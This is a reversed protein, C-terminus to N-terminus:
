QRQQKNQQQLELLCLDREMEAREKGAIFPRQARLALIQDDRQEASFDAASSRRVDRPRQLPSSQSQHPPRWPASSAGPLQYQNEETSKNNNYYTVGNPDPASKWGARLSPAPSVLPEQPPPLAPSCGGSADSGGARSANHGAICAPKNAPHALPHMRQRQAESGIVAAFFSGSFPAIFNCLYHLTLTTCDAYHFHSIAAAGALSLSAGVAYCALRTTTSWPVVSHILGAVFFITRIAAPLLPEFQMRELFGSLDRASISADMACQAVVWIALMATWLVTIRDHDAGMRHVGVAMATFFAVYACSVYVVSV